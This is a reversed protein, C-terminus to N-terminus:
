TEDRAGYRLTVSMRPFNELELFMASGAEQSAAFETFDAVPHWGWILSPCVQKLKRGFLRDLRDAMWGIVPISPICYHVATLEPISKEVRLREVWAYVEDLVLKLNLINPKQSHEIAFEMSEIRVKGKPGPGAKKQSVMFSGVSWGKEYFARDDGTKRWNMGGRSFHKIRDKLTSADTELVEIKGFKEEFVLSHRGRRGSMRELHSKCTDYTEQLLDTGYQDSHKNLSLALGHFYDQAYPRELSSFVFVAPLDKHSELLNSLQSKTMVYAVVATDDSFFGAIQNVQSPDLPGGVVISKPSEYANELQLAASIITKSFDNQRPAYKELSRFIEPRGSFYIDYGSHNLVTPPANNVM